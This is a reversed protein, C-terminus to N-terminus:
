MFNCVCFFLCFHPFFYWLKTRNKHKCLKIVHIFMGCGRTWGQEDEERILLILNIVQTWNWLNILDWYFLNLGGHRKKLFFVDPHMGTKGCKKKQCQHSMLCCIHLSMYMAGFWGWTVRIMKKWFNKIPTIKQFMQNVPDGAKDDYTHNM